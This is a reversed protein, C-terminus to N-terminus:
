KKGPHDKKNIIFIDTFSAPDVFSNASSSTATCTWNGVDNSQVLPSITIQSVPIIKDPPLNMKGLDRVTIRPDNHVSMGDREYSFNIIVDTDQELTSSATTMCLLTLMTGSYFPPVESMPFFMTDKLVVTSSICCFASTSLLLSLSLLFQTYLLSVIHQFSTLMNYFIQPM